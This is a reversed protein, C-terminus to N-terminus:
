PAGGQSKLLESYPLSMAFFPRMRLRGAEKVLAHGFDVQAEGPRHELPMFVERRRARLEAVEEKVATYGGRYGKERGLREYIRRATHRQKRPANRDAKLVEEIWSVYPDIKRERRKKSRYGPPQSHALMKELTEWHLGEERMVSRKSQKERLVKQRVRTWQKM